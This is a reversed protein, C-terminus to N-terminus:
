SSSDGVFDRARGSVRQGNIEFNFEEDDEDFMEEDDEWDWEMASGFEGYYTNPCEWAGPIVLEPQDVMDWFECVSYDMMEIFWCKWDSPKPGYTFNIYFPKWAGRLKGESVGVFGFREYGPVWNKVLLALEKQGYQVLDVEALEFQRLWLRIAHQVREAKCERLFHWKLRRFTYRLSIDKAVCRLAYWHTLIACGAVM